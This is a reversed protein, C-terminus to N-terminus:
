LQIVFSRKKIHVFAEMEKTFEYTCIQCKLTGNDLQEIHDIYIKCTNGHLGHLFKAPASNFVEGCYQCSEQDEM